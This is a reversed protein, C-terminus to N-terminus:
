MDRLEAVSLVISVLAWSICLSRAVATHNPQHINLVAHIGVVTGMFDYHDTHGHCSAAHIVAGSLWARAQLPQDAALACGVGKTTSISANQVPSPDSQAFIKPPLSCNEAVGTPTCLSSIDRNGIANLYQCVIIGNQWFVRMQRVSLCFQLLLVTHQMVHLRMIFVTFYARLM